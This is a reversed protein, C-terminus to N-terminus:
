GCPGARSVALRQGAISATLCGLVGGDADRAVWRSGPPGARLEAGPTLTRGGTLPCSGACHAVVVAASTDNVLLAPPQALDSLFAFTPLLGLAVLVCVVVGALLLLRVLRPRAV